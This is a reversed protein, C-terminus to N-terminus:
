TVSGHLSPEQVPALVIYNNYTPIGLLCYKYKNIFGDMKGEIITLSFGLFLVAKRLNDSWHFGVM